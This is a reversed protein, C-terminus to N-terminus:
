PSQKPLLTVLDGLHGKALHITCINNLEASTSAYSIGLGSAQILGIDSASDGIAATNERSIGFRSIVREAVSRKNGDIVQVDVTGTFEGNKIDVKNATIFDIGLERQAREALQYPGSSIIATRIGVRHCHEFLPQVGPSYQSESVMTLLPEAMFGRWLVDVTLRSMLEYNQSMYRKALELAKADTGMRRHLRLWFNEEQFIVGDM